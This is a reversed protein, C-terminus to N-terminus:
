FNRAFALSLLNEPEVTISFRESTDTSTDLVEKVITVWEVAKDYSPFNFVTPRSIELAGLIRLGGRVLLNAKLDDVQRIAVRYGDDDFVDVGSYVLLGTNIREKGVM